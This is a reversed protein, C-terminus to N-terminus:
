SAQVKERNVSASSKNTSSQTARLDTYAQMVARALKHSDHRWPQTEDVVDATIIPLSTSTESQIMHGVGDPPNVWDINFRSNAIIADIVNPGVHKEIAKAHDLISYNDTEGHQSAVNCVYLTLAKSARIADPINTILLNPLVSTYLSGPGLVIIDADLIARITEPYPRADAPKLTVREISGNAHTIASEGEVHILGHDTKVEASISVDNLTSPLIRGTIALVRSSEILGREFSGSVDAMATIFLNGFAHGDLGDGQAFRYQFLQATLSEDDALAALCNRFDGPPLVGLERRLRGSSGGDDAVTVIATINSTHAKIGRLFISLGTGGGIAVVKLGRERRYHRYVIEAMPKDGPQIFPALISRNIRILAIAIAAIGFGGILIARLVRPIFQLTIVYFVDPLPANRYIDVVVYAVGLGILTIGLLLLGLWRKVGIGPTFWRWVSSSRIRKPLSSKNQPMGIQNYRLKLNQIESKQNAANGLGDNQARLAAM